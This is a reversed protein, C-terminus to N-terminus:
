MVDVPFFKCKLFISVDFRMLKVIAAGLFCWYGCYTDRDSKDSDYWAADRNDAYWQNEIYQQLEEASCQGQLTRLFMVASVPFLLEAEPKKVPEAQAYTMLSQLLADKPINKQPICQVPFHFVIALSIADLAEQYSLNGQQCIHSLYQDVTKQMDTIKSGLSYQAYLKDHLLNSLFRHCQMAKAPSDALEDLKQEFLVIRQEQTNLYRLFYQEPRLTDRLM